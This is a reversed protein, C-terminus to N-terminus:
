DVVMDHLRFFFGLETVANASPAAVTITTPISNQSVNSIASGDGGGGGGTLEDLLFDLDSMRHHQTQNRLSAGVTGRNQQRYQRSSAIVTVIPRKSDLM